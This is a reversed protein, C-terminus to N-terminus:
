NTENCSIIDLEEFLRPVLCIEWAVQFVNVHVQFNLKDHVNMRELYVFNQLFTKRCLFLGKEIGVTFALAVGM